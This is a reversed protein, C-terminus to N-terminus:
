KEFEKKLKEYVALRKKREVEENEKEKQEQEKYYEQNMKEVIAKLEEDAMTLYEASFYGSHFEYGGYNWHEEGEWYIKGDKTPLFNNAFSIDNNEEHLSRAGVLINVVRRCDKNFEKNLESYKELDEKKM